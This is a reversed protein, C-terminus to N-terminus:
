QSRRALRPSWSALRAGANTTLQRWRGSILDFIWLQKDGGRNSTLVIHRGDPAWSPDENEWQNTIRTVTDAVGGNLHAIWVQFKKNQQQYIITSGDPSWDPATRENRLKATPPVLRKVNTGRVDMTYIQPYLPKSAVFALRKGDPSFVPGAVDRMEKAFQMKLVRARGKGSASSIVLRSDHGGATAYVVSDGSPTFVPTINLGRKTATFTASKGSELDIKVIQTGASELDTYVLATGRPHWAPSLAIGQSTLVTDGTGDADIVHLQQNFIYAIRTAAIGREGVMWEQVIDAMRHVDMRPAAGTSDWGVHFNSAHLIRQAPVDFVTVRAGTGTRAVRVVYAVDYATADAYLASDSANWLAARSFSDLIVVDFQDSFAFDSELLVRVSDDLTSDAAVVLVAPVPPALRPPAAPLPSEPLPIVPPTSDAHASPAQAHVSRVGAACLTVCVWFEKLRGIRRVGVPAFRLQKIM